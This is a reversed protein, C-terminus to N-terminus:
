VNNWLNSNRGVALRHFSPLLPTGVQLTSIDPVLKVIVSVESPLMTSSILPTIARVTLHALKYTYNPLTNFSNLTLERSKEIMMKSSFAYVNPIKYTLISPNDGSIDFVTTPTFLDNANTATIPDLTTTIALSGRHASHKVVEFELSFECKFSQFNTLYWPFWPLFNTSRDIGHAYVDMELLNDTVSSTTTYDFNAISYEQSINSLWNSKPTTIIPEGYSAKGAVPVTTPLTTDVPPMSLVHETIQESM